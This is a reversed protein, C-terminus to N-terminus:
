NQYKEFQVNGLEAFGEPNNFGLGPMMWRPNAYGYNRVVQYLDVDKVKPSIYFKPKLLNEDKSIIGEEVAIRQLPTHPYIRM